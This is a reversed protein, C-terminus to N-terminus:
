FEGFVGFYFEGTQPSRIREPAHERVFATWYGMRNKQRLLSSDPSLSSFITMNCSSFRSPKEVLTDRSPRARRQHSLLIADPPQLRSVLGIEQTEIQRRVPEKQEVIRRRM